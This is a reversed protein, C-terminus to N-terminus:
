YDLEKFLSGQVEKVPAALSDAGFFEAAKKKHRAMYMDWDPDLESLPMIYIPKLERQKKKRDYVSEFVFPRHTAIDSAMIIDFDKKTRYKEKLHKELDVDPTYFRIQKGNEYGTYWDQSKTHRVLKENSLKQELLLRSQKEMTDQANEFSHQLANKIFDGYTEMEFTSLLHQPHDLIKIGKYFGHREYFIREEGDDRENGILARGIFDAFVVPPNETWIKDDIGLEHKKHAQSFQEPTGGTFYLYPGKQHIIKLKNDNAFQYIRYALKDLATAISVDDVNYNGWLRNKRKGINEELKALSSRLEKLKKPNDQNKLSKEIRDKQKEMLKLGAYDTIMFDAIANEYKALFLKEDSTWHDRSSDPKKDFLQSSEPFRKAILDRLCAGFPIYAKIVNGYVGIKHEKIAPSISVADEVLDEIHDRFHSKAATRQKTLSKTLLYVDDRHIGLVNHFRAKQIANIASPSHLLSALPVNFDRALETAIKFTSRFENSNFIDLLVNVDHSLYTAITQASEKQIPNSGDRAINELDELQEYSISKKFREDGLIHKAVMELKQNPLYDFAAQAWRLLDIVSRGQIGVREFFKLTVETRPETHAAGIDFKNKSKRRSERLKLIDFKANYPSIIFPNEKQISHQVGEALQEETDYRHISYGEHIQAGVDSLTHMEKTVTGKHNYALGVWSVEDNTKFRPVEIDLFLWKQDMLEPYSLQRPSKMHNSSLVLDLTRRKSDRVAHKSFQKYVDHLEKRKEIISEPLSRTLPHTTLKSQKREFFLENLANFSATARSKSKIEQSLSNRLDLMGDDFQTKLSLLHATQEDLEVKTVPNAIIRRAQETYRPDCLYSAVSTKKFSIHSLTEKLDATGKLQIVEYPGGHITLKPHKKRLELLLKQKEQKREKEEPSDFKSSTFNTYIDIPIDKLEESAMMTQLLQLSINESLARTNFVYPIATEFTGLDHVTVSARGKHFRHRVDSIIAELM